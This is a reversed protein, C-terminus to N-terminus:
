RSAQSLRQLAEKAVPNTPDIALVSSYHAIAERRKDSFTELLKALNLHIASSNPLIRLAAAFHELADTKWSPDEALLLALNTHADADEPQLRLAAEYHVRAEAKRGPLNALLNAMNYHADAFDPKLRLAIEYHALADVPRNLPGALLQALNNQADAYDPKLRLATEYHGLAAAQGGPENGLLVALNNHADAYNPNLRLATEFHSYADAQKGPQRSLFAAFNNHADAYDPRLRLAAEYHALTEAACNPQTALLGALNSHAEAFRPQLLLATEYHARADAKRDARAALLLALNHHARYNEPAKQVTDEWLRVADQYDYNRRATSLIGGMALIACARCTRRTGHCRQFIAVALTLIGVLALYPRNEAIPAGVVPVLSSSPALLVFFWTIAFGLSPRRVLAWISGAVLVAVVIAYPWAQTLSNFIVPNRDFILPHPWFCLSGYIVLAKCETLGYHFPSVDSGFGIGRHKVGILLWLVVLWITALSGYFWRRKSLAARFSGAVFVRDYLLIALPLTVATEKCMGSCLGAVVASSHWRLVQGEVGRVFCYLSLLYFLSMLAECRQSIYTVTQTQLPHVAWLIAVAGALLAADNAFRAALVPTRLTRRLVGFLALATLAHIGVNLLHHGWPKVGSIGYSIAFSLNTLPRGGTTAEAPPNLVSSLWWLNRISPNNTIASEDDLLLPVRFTGCYAVFVSALIAVIM